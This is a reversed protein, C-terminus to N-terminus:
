SKGCPKVIAGDPLVKTGDSLIADAELPLAKGEKYMMMKGDAMGYGDAANVLRTFSFITLSGIVVTALIIRNMPM